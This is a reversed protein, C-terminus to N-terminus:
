LLSREINEKSYDIMFKGNADKTINEGHWITVGSNFIGAIADKIAQNLAGVVRIQSTEVFNFHKRTRLNPTGTMDVRYGYKHYRNAAQWYVNDTCREEVYSNYPFIIKLLGDGTGARLLNNPQNRIAKEKIEQQEWGFLDNALWEAGSMVAGIGAGLLAQSPNFGFGGTNGSGAMGSIGAMGTIAGIASTIGHQNITSQLMERDTERSSAIYSQWQDSPIDMTLGNIRYLLGLASLRGIMDPMVPRYQPDGYDFFYGSSYSDNDDIDYHWLLKNDFWANDNIENVLSGQSDLLYRIMYPNKFMEPDHEPSYDDGDVPKVPKKMNVTFVNDMNIKSLNVTNYEKDSYLGYEFYQCEYDGDIHKTQYHEFFTPSVENRIILEYSDTNLPQLEFTVSDVFKMKVVPEYSIAMISNPDFDDRLKKTFNGNLVFYPSLPPRRYINDDGDFFKAALVVHLNYRVGDNQDTNYFRFVPIFIESYAHEKNIFSIFVGGMVVKLNDKEVIYQHILPQCTSKDYLSINDETPPRRWLINGDRDWRDVHERTIMGESVTFEFLFTQWVDLQLEFGTVKDNVVHSGTVFYFMKKNDYLFSCYTFRLGETWPVELNLTKDSKNYNCNDFFTKDTLNDFYADRDEMSPFDICHKHTIDFGVDGYMTIQRITPM